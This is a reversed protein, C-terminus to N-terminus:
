AAVKAGGAIEDLDIIRDAMATLEPTQSVYFECRYGGLRLV